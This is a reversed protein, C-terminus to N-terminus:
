NFTASFALSAGGFGADMDEETQDDALGAGGYVSLAVGLGWNDSVWWEKGVMVRAMAARDLTLETHFDDDGREHNLEGYVVLVSGSVYINYPMWYWTLGGGLGGLTLVRDDLEIEADETDLNESGMAILDGHLILNESLAGGISLEFQQGGGGFGYERRDGSVGVGLAAPGTAMRLFFGDHREAGPNFQESTSPTQAQALVPLSLAILTFIFRTM